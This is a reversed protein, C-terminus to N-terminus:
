LPLALRPWRWLSAGLILLSVCSVAAGPYLFPPRYRLEVAHEGEDLAVGLLGTDVKLVPAMRGDQFAHWGLDFPTQLVLISKETLRISGEIRSQRLSRINLATRRREAVLDPISTDIVRGKIEGITLRSLRHENAKDNDSLVVAHLLALPKAWDPLQLLMDETIYHGFSLGLPLFMQNRFLHKNGYRRVFEYHEAKSFPDPNETLVYKECAFTSLLPRGLLGYSWRSDSIINAESIAGVAILFKIYNLNNFSSYCSTGFYGFVMADNLSEHIGLGSGWTKTLRFFSDDSAKIEGVADVTEDNYGVRQNLEQKTVTPRTITVQDFYFLEFAAVAVALWSVIKQQKLLQGLLLLVGYGGLFIAAVMRLESVILAQFQKVPAFLIGILALLTAVLIWLNFPEGKSYRSFATMGLTIVGLISFLSLARYYDGSFGWLLYRLWPFVTILVLASLFVTYVIRRRWISRVFAQPLLLLSILGCYSMPAELYNQWGRFHDGTGMLDNGFPRLIATMYHLSSAQGLISTSSLPGALSTLGSGRPSNLLAYFSNVSLIAGLGVGLLSAAALAVSRRFLPRPQWSFREILRAPVYFCLLLAGLYLHFAGLFGVVTVAPVLYAWRGRSVAHEAAFLLLTFCVVEYAHFYWCSGMCMYASFCLLLAGLVSSAFSLGRRLLFGGFLLGSLGVYLLHQYVIAKAIASKPLWIVPTLVLGSLSPFLNQGMGVQFSWSFIGEHRLYDSRLAYNPYFVNISDVGMDKYLLTRDGFVFNRYILLGLVIVTLGIAMTAFALRGRAHQQPANPTRASEADPKM